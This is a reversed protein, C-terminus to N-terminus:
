EGKKNAHINNFYVEFKYLDKSVKDLNDIISPLIDKIVDKDDLEHALTNISRLHGITANLDNTFSLDDLNM